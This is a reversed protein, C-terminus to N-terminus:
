NVKENNEDIFEKSDSNGSLGNIVFWKDCKREM